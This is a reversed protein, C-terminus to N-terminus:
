FYALVDLIQQLVEPVTTEYARIIINVIVLLFVLLGIQVIVSGIWRM